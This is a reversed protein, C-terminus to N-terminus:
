LFFVELDREFYKKIFRQNSLAFLQMDCEHRDGSVSPLGNQLMWRM